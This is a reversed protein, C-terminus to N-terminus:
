NLPDGLRLQFGLLFHRGLELLLDGGQPVDRVSFLDELLLDVAGLLVILVNQM